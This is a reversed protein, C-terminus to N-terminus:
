VIHLINDRILPLDRIFFNRSQKSIIGEITLNRLFKSFWPNWSDRARNLVTINSSSQTIQSSSNTNHRKREILPKVKFFQNWSIYRQLHSIFRGSNRHTYTLIYRNLHSV